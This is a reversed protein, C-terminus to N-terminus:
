KTIRMINKVFVINWDKVKEGHVVYWDEDVKGNEAVESGLRPYDASKIKCRISETDDELTFLLYATQGDLYRGNRKVVFQAENEDRVSLETLKGIFNFQGSSEKLEKITIPAESIKFKEHETYYDGYIDRAPYLYKFPSIDADLHKQIGPPFPKGEERLKVIKNANAPGIGKISTFGGCLFAEEAWRKTEWKQRSNELDIHRYKIGETEVADRLIRVASNDDKAHNLCAKVFELPHHAKMYACYYSILGYSVSHSKNFAYGGFTKIQEWIHYAELKELGNKIAGLVFGKKFKDIEDGKSKAIAKRIAGTEAWSFDGVERCIRMVQEQYVIVGFTEKTAEKVLPNESIWEISKRGARANVYDWSAGSSLPGPRGLASLASIDEINEVPMKKALSKVSDGEFQFVGSFRKQSFIEYTEPDDLPLDYIWLYSKGITDCVEALISLTRLGLLDIKLLNLTEADRKDIMAVRDQKPRSNIGCYNSVPENCVLVAAAHKGIYDTHNELKAAVALSPYKEILAKGTDSNEFADKLNSATGKVEEIDELPILLSKAVRNLASKPKFRGINALQIVNDKGYKKSLYNLVLHRKDDPFDIDIDPLDPRNLDIFREFYLGYKIPDVETIGLLYCVLSGASSGRAPGVLMKTKAYAVLDAVVLFYDQFNKENIVKLERAMRKEYEDKGEFGRTIMEISCLHEIYSPKADKDKPFYEVMPAQPLTVNCQKAIGSAYDLPALSGQVSLWEAITPIHMIGLSRELKFEDAFAEYAAQDALDIYTNEITAVGHPFPIDNILCEWEVRSHVDPSDIPNTGSLIYLNRSAKIMQMYSIRPLWFFQKYAIDVLSYLERLGENNKAIFTMWNMIFGREKSDLEETVPLQVGFIPKVGHKRCAKSWRVHGYTNCRDAIGAYDAMSAAKEVVKELHAYVARTTFETKYNLYM